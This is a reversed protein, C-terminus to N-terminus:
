PAGVKSLCIAAIEKVKGSGILFDATPKDCKAVIKEVVNGGCTKVLEELENAIDEVPWGKKKQFEVTVLM